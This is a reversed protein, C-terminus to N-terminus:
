KKIFMFHFKESATKLDNNSNLKYDEEQLDIELPRMIDHKNHRKPSRWIIPLTKDFWVKFDQM